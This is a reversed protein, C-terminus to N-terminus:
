VLNKPLRLDAALITSLRLLYEHRNGVEPLLGDDEACVTTTRKVATRTKSYNTLFWHKLPGPILAIRTEWPACGPLWSYYQQTLPHISPPCASYVASDQQGLRCELYDAKVVSVGFAALDADWQFWYHNGRAARYAVTRIQAQQIMQELLAYAEPSDPECDMVGSSPGMLAALGWNQGKPFMAPLAQVNNTAEVDWKCGHKPLKTGPQLAFVRVGLDALCKATGMLCEYHNVM